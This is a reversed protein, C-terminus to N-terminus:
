AIFAKLWISAYHMFCVFVFERKKVNDYYRMHMAMLAVGFSSEIRKGQHDMEIDKCFKVGAIRINIEGM